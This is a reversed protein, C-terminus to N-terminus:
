FYSVNITKGMLKLTKSLEEVLQMKINFGIPLNPNQHAPNIARGVYFNIDTAEEFLLKAIESAGDKKFSWENYLTNKDVYDKAYELVQNITLVGETVLDVGEIKAAPPIKPDIYNISTELKKDLFAAALTSTTGGSVIHRGQKAFFLSMMKNVDEPKQPPGFMLNVVKRKRIKIAAITTDDGPMKAYLNNCADLVLSAIAKASFRYDYHFEIYEVINERQWGYNLTQGVGAYVAGDSMVVFVDDCKLNIKSEIIKKGSIIKTETPYEYNQGDRILIVTPNDYQIIEAYDNNTIKIITFTSYAIGRVKCVPLTAMITNVCDEISMHEAIMTSIIKSTLTSLINAKVGSGLGDALVLITTDDDKVVQIMDGCLQEGFKNLSGYGLDVCLDNM